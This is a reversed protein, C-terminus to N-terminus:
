TNTAEAGRASAAPRLYYRVMPRPPVRRAVIEFGARLFTSLYGTGSASPTRAADLPYAELASVKARRAERVAGRILAETVGRRRHSIRVYFCSISWVPVEDARELRWCRNLWALTARPTLQCWGVAIKGDFALLGPPPGRRVINRFAHKNASRPRSRYLPGVRWYMCWCGNAAGKKGFLDELAPWLKPTVPRITLNVDFRKRDSRRRPTGDPQDLTGHMQGPSRDTLVAARRRNRELRDVSSLVGSGATSFDRWSRM